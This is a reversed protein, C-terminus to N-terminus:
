GPAAGPFADMGGQFEPHVFLADTWGARENQFFFRYFSVLAFGRDALFGYIEDLRPLGKYMDSLIIEMYILHIARRRIMAEAGRLVELDYGQTDSKLIDVRDVGKRNCYDDLTWVEVPRKEQITGWGDASPELFSSMVSCENDLFTKSELRAGLAANNLHLDPVGASRRRLEEFTRLGPEFCHITPRAFYKRFQEVSQGVNAGVDFVVPSPGAKTLARIDRFPDRGLDNGGRPLRCLEYGLHALASRVVYKLVM